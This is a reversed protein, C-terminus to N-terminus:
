GGADRRLVRGRRAGTHLGDRVTWAGGVFVHPIGIPTRRPQDYTARDEIRLPDFLVLDAVAGVRIVGRDRFGLKRATLGTMRHVAAELTLLKEKRVYEAFVRPFTGYTRPHPKGERLPFGDTGVMTEPHAFVRRVDREHMAHAIVAVAGEEELLLDYVAEYFGQHRLRMVQRLSLGEYQRNKRVSSVILSRAVLERLLPKVRGPLRRLAGPLKVMEVFRADCEDALRQRAAPDRLRGVTEETTGEFAWPSLVLAALITSGATYPYMDSSVDVGRGRAEDVLQLTRKVKGWNTFGVAKHHSIQVAVGAEEGIRIAEAVAGEVGSAEDRVHSAYLGGGPRVAAALTVLEATDAFRGPPYVLGTSLGFAGQAMGQEVLEVMQRLESATPAREAMGMAACRVNGHPILCAVNVSVGGEELRARYAALDPSSDGGREGFILPLFRSYMADVAANAPQIGLGCNGVVETTVGQLLKAEATPVMPLMFDDHSHMDIFGPAVVLGRAELVEDPRLAGHRPDGIRDGDILLDGSTSPGGTGDVIRAGTILIRM